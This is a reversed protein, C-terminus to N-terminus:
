KPEPLNNTEPSNTDVAAGDLNQRFVMKQNTASLHNNARDWVIVDGTLTDQANELQPNGTLTITENTVSGQVQYHYVVKDGTAHVAQGKEDTADIVVNTKAVINNVRGGSQPLDAVLWESTLKMEPDDVRVHGRYIAQRATLDFDVSDSDIRTPPRAPKPAPVSNTKVLALIEAVANTNEALASTNTQARVSLGCLAIIAIFCFFNVTQNM